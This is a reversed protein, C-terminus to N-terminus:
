FGKWRARIGAILSFGVLQSESGDLRPWPTLITDYALVNACGRRGRAAVKASM